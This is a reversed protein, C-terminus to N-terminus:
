RPERVFRYRLIAAAVTQATVGTRVVPGWCQVSAPKGGTIESPFVIHMELLTMLDIPSRTRFLVGSRSVNLITGINWSADGGVRYELSAEVPFRPDRRMYGGSRQELDDAIGYLIAM